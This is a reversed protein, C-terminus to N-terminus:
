TPITCQLILTDGLIVSAKKTEENKPSRRASPRSGDPRMLGGAPVPEASM